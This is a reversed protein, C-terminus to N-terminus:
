TTQFEDDDTDSFFGIVKNILKQSDKLSLQDYLKATIQPYTIRPLVKKHAEDNMTLLDYRSVGKLAAPNPESVVTEKIEKDDALKLPKSFVVVEADQNDM